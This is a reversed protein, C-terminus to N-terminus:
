SKISDDQKYFENEEEKKQKSYYPSILNDTKYVYNVVNNVLKTNQYEDDFFEIKDPISLLIFLLKREEELLPYKHEYLKLLELFNVDNYNNKYFYYIDYIPNGISSKDWSILYSEENRVLHDIALNNHNTVVREKKKNKIISYWNDLEVNSYRLASYIKSINRILLYHSPSMYLEEDILNNLDEYYSITNAIKEKLNEYVIKYDEIDIEKYHTTKNHLLSVLNIVDLAKQEKPTNVDEIYEYIEYEDSRDTNYMKPFYLFSRSALYEFLDEKNRIKEKIVYKRDKSNVIKVNNKKKYGVPIIGYKKLIARENNM